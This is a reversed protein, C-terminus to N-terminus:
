DRGYIDRTYIKFMVDSLEEEFRNAIIIDCREKFQNINNEVEYTEFMSVDLTPEYILIKVGQECLM